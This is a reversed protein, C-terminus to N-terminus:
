NMNRRKIKISIFGEKMWKHAISFWNSLIDPYICLSICLFMGTDYFLVFLLFLLNM